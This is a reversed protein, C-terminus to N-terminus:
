GRARDADTDVNSGFDRRPVLFALAVHGLIGFLVVDVLQVVHAGFGSSLAVERPVGLAHFGVVWGAEQTGFGALGNIPLLNALVALGSGFSAQTLTTEEPLGLARALVAYFLFVGLWLPVSLAAALAFAHGTRAARLAEGLRPAVGALARRGRSSDENGGLVGLARAALRDGRALLLAFGAAAVLLVGGLGRIAAPLPAGDVSAVSLCALGMGGSLVALDLLRSVLLSAAGSAAPVASFRKLYLVLTAEGTKAPLVYAALNHACSAALVAHFPPREARPLLAAFRLARLVYIGAHVSLATLFTSWSLRSLASRADAFSVDGWAALVALLLAAVALSLLLRPLLKM